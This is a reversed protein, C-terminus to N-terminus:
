PPSSASRRDPGGGRRRRRRERRVGRVRHRGALRRVLRAHEGATTSSPPAPRAPCRGAPCTSLATATGSTVVERMMTRLPEVPSTWRPGGRGPKAPAPDLVLKPQVFQGRAVAATAAAMALPSVVTTGQGFAAAARETPRAAPPSRAASRTSAWTGRGGLGLARRRAQGPRRRGAEPGPRRVRHQVVERLRHPVAGHRAGLQGLEQVLPRRGDHDEPLRGRRRATVAKKDLLGLATVMKFTSGPPVQATFATNM